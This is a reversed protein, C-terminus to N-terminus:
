ICFLKRVDKQLEEISSKLTQFLNNVEGINPLEQAAEEKLKEDLVNLLHDLKIKTSSHQFNGSGEM